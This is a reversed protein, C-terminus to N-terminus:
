GGDLWDRADHIDLRIAPSTLLIDLLRRESETPLMLTLQCASAGYASAPEIRMAAVDVGQSVLLIWAEDAEARSRFYAVAVRHPQPM